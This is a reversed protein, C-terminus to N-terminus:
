VGGRLLEADIRERAGFPEFAFEAWDFLTGSQAATLVDAADARDYEEEAELRLERAAAVGDVELGLVRTVRLTLAVDTAARMLGRARARLLGVELALFVAIEEDQFLPDAINTDPFMARFKGVDTTLDYTASM